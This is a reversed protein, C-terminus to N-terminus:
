YKLKIKVPCIVTSAPFNGTFGLRLVRIQPSILRMPLPSNVDGNVNMAALTTGHCSVGNEGYAVLRMSLDSAFINWIIEYPLAPEYNNLLIPNTLLEVNVAVNLEHSIDLVHGDSCTAIAINSSLQQLKTGENANRSYLRGSPMLVEISGDKCAIWLEDHKHNWALSTVNIDKLVEKTRYQELSCIKGDDSAFYVNTYSGIPKVQRAIRRSTLPVAPAYKASATLYPMAYTGDEAFVYIPSGINNNTHRAAATIALIPHDCIDHVRNITLPNLETYEFVKGIISEVCTKEDLEPLSGAGTDTFSLPQLKSSSIAMWQRNSPCLDAEVQRVSGNVLLMIKMRFARPDPYTLIPNLEAPVIDSSGKWYTVATGDPTKLHTEVIIDCNGADLNGHWYMTPHWPNVLRATDGSAFFRRNHCLIYNYCRKYGIAEMCLSLQATDVTGINDYSTLEYRKMTGPLGTADAAVDCNAAKVIGQRLAAMDTIRCAIIWENCDLLRQKIADSSVSKLSYELRYSLVNDQTDTLCTYDVLSSTDVPSSEPTVLIDISKIFTDWDEKSGKEVIMAMRFTEVELRSQGTGTFNNDGTLVTASSEARQLGKGVLVPPSVWLYSDDWLRVAYRALLPQILLGNASAYRQMHKYTDQANASLKAIDNANLPPQWRPYATEFEIAPVDESIRGTAAECLILRPIASDIDLVKYTDDGNYYKLIISGNTTSTMMYDGITSIATLKSDINCLSSDKTTLIGNDAITAHWKITNGALSILNIVGHTEHAAILQEGKALTTLTAPTGVPTLGGSNERLNVLTSCSGTPAKEEVAYNTKGSFDAIISKHKM